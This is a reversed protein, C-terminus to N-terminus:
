AAKYSSAVVRSRPSRPLQLTNSESTATLAKSTQLFDCNGDDAAGDL